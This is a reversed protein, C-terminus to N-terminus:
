HFLIPMKNINSCQSFSPSMFFKLLHSSNSIKKIYRNINDINDSAFSAHSLTFNFYKVLVFIYFCSHHIGTYSISNTVYSKDLFRKLFYLDMIYGGIDGYITNRLFICLKDLMIIIKIKTNYSIGYTISNNDEILNNNIDSDMYTNIYYELLKIYSDMIDFMKIFKIKLNENIFTNIINQLNSNNYKSLLKSIQYKMNHSYESSTYKTNGHPNNNFFYKSPKKPSSCNNYFSEYLVTFNSTIISLGDKIDILDQWLFKKDIWIKSCMKNIHMFIIETENILWGRIDIFHYRCNSLKSSSTNSKDNYVYMDNFMDIVNDLYRNLSYSSILPNREIFIDYLTEPFKVKNENLTDKIYDVVNVGKNCKSQGNINVHIDMFIYIIKTIGNISGKLRIINVPGNINNM